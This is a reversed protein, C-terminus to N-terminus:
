GNLLRTQQELGLLFRKCFIRSEKKKKEKWKWREKESIKRRVSLHFGHVFISKLGFAGKKVRPFLPLREKMDRELKDILTDRTIALDGVQNDDTLTM